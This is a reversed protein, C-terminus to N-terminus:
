CPPRHSGNGKEWQDSRSHRSSVFLAYQVISKRNQQANGTTTMRDVAESTYNPPRVPFGRPPDANETNGSELLPGAPSQLGFHACSFSQKGLVHILGPTCRKSESSSDVHPEPFRKRDRCRKMGSSQVVLSYRFPSISHLAQFCLRILMAYSLM